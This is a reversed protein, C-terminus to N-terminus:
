LFKYSAQQELVQVDDLHQNEVRCNGLPVHLTKGVIFQGDLIAQNDGLGSAERQKNVGLTLAFGPDLVSLSVFIHLYAITQPTLM